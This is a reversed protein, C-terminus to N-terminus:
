RNGALARTITEDPNPTNETFVQWGAATFAAASAEQDPLLVAIGHAPWALEAEAVVAGRDGTLEFGVEPVPTGRECLAALLAHTEPAALGIAEKWDEGPPPGSEVEAEPCPVAPGETAPAFEPYLGGRVGRRTTWWAGPLFQLLNFLRLVGNWTRRYRPSERSAEDDHLHVIAAMAGPDGEEVAALPLAVFLDACRRAAAMGASAGAGIEPDTGTGIRADVGTGADATAGIGTNAGTATRTDVETRSGADTGTGTGAGAGSGIGADAGTWAGRGALAVPAPLDALAERVQGPLAEAAARGFRARLAGSLMRKRDFFRFLETFVARKWQVPDPDALYRVLLILAPEHLRSRYRATDWRRDLARQLVSMPNADVEEGRSRGEEEPFGPANGAVGANGDVGSSFGADSRGEEGLLDPVDTVGSWGEEGLLDPVESVGGFAAELDHWTLSWVLFGARALAMRKLSDADTTDRHFEFGDTFVAVPPQGPSPRAPRILFDPRSPEAVGESPGLDAQPEMYYTRGGVKLVYGPKGRVLDARVQVTGGAGGTSGVGGIDGIGDAGAARGAGGARGARGIGGVDGIGGAGGAGGVGVGHAGGVSGVGGASGASGAGGAGGASGVGGIGGADGIGDAGAAGGARGAGRAGGIGGDSGVEGGSGGGDRDIEVRCLAEIFRAELESELPGDTRVSGLSPVEELAHARDLIRDLIEIAADRSTEAMERSRRYAFVCRYCGDKSPDRNCECSKLADRASRFVALMRAPDEMLEKLYGTGSPVTDYLLLYRHSASASASAGAGGTAAGGIAGAAAGQRVTARLHDIRGRFHLRLGLELAAVFSSIRRDSMAAGSLAAGFSPANSLPPVGVFPANLVPLLMQVAESRFERYLYLCDAVDSQGPAKGLPQGTARAAAQGSGKGARQGAARGAPQRAPRGAAKRASCTRTHRSEEGGEGDGEGDGAGDGGSGGAQVTGCRRCVRFGERPLSLGAFATPQGGDGLRGFNMERFTASAVYEFGFPLDSGTVAWAREVADPEFDAVLQRTYFRPERDDYDDLIRARRDDKAAHVLRLPLMERRQGTDSWMPDGCRPCAAYEDKPGVNECYDCSPCLRWTEIESVRLDIRDISVRRGGAHFENEPAFEGLASAAPRVYEYVEHEYAVPDSGAKGPRQDPRERSRAASDGLSRGPSRWEYGGGDGDGDADTSGGGGTGASGIMSAETSTSGSGAGAGTDAGASTRGAQAGARADAGADEGGRGADRDPERRRYIVSKLTVGAEPFAYNPLLGEDTLFNFTERGNLGRLLGQLGRRERAIEEIEDETAEDRPGRKLAALRRGLSEVDARLAKREKAVDLFRSVLRSRLSPRSGGPEGGGHLFATLYDKSPATLGASEGSFATFFAELLADGHAQVFDFFPYPFGAVGAAVVTAAAPSSADAGAREVNDLVQRITRPVADEPLGTAAWSDLCFATLQRELVAPADLFVGPPAIRGALMEMPDTYFYLDHPQGTAVTATLANGDRRGARGIRQLYNAQAPPVSCLVVTSLDGVDIGLELTPTASLLNPEWPRPRPDSFRQQLRDREERTLLATHEAAIIRRIATDRYLRGFWTPPEAASREYAAQVGLDLCPVGLWLDAEREPVVLTRRSGACHLVAPRATVHFRAPDLAWAFAGGAARGVVRGATGATSGGAAQGAARGRGAIGGVEIRCILGAAELASFVELLVRAADRTATLVDIPTLVKEAWTQYWSRPRGPGAILPELGDRGRGGGGGGRGSAGSVDAPFVPLASRRGFDQLARDRNLWWRGGGRALWASALGDGDRIAGRDKMRRLIGLALARVPAPGLDRLGGFAERIRLRAERCARELADRDVGVAAARTRELTRGIASGYGLEALTDWRLRRAVLAPLDSGAPLRGERQLAVFDRLWQRDPAIFESVFRETDFAGPNVRADRWWAEVRAPLDALATGDHAAVVQAVAARVSNRWTRASFFGGRHAADQVNDSFAIVKRDNNYRSGCAQGLAVSLLSAARAGLIILGERAGCYPCDRSLRKAPTGGGRSARSVVADPRFVRVLRNSRCGPCLPTEREGAQERGRASGNGGERANGNGNGSRNRYGVGRGHGHGDRGEQGQGYGGERGHEHRHAQVYGDERGHGREHGQGSGGDRRGPEHRHAQGDRDERGQGHLMGCAGCVTSFVGRVGPPAEAPFLYQVDVDRAFFRNYFVRLDREIRPEAPRKVAGWGTVRCERCQILPLHISPEGPSLDDSYRLRRVVTGGVAAKGEPATASDTAGGERDGAPEAATGRAKGESGGRHGRGAAPNGSGPAVGERLGAVGEVSGEDPEEHLSCVMRRLERVWLHMGVQLFPLLRGPPAEAISDAGAEADMPASPGAVTGAGADEGGERRRAVSILACLGNLVGVAEHDNAVPLSRRLREVVGSMPKPGGDLVRLLNVFAAHERLRDALALRWEGSEFGGEIPADFFLAHQARLYQEATAYRTPDVRAALDDRPHLHRSIVADGLFADISQRTEGVIAGPEFRQGFVRSAYDLLEAEADAGGDVGGAGGGGGAGGMGGAHGPDGAGGARGPDGAHRGARAHGAGGLTASTGVCILKGPSVRLRVRLRRILCALDTGQAGDFTHLEDVVLYRLTDPGNHRWLRFDFPRVLLYDLMKYNTLLIDPPRERLTDRDTIVHDQGMTTHPSRQPRNDRGVFLGATVKGRLSPTRNITRAIRRAQDAALANMPYVLVAKIGPAPSAARCHDLIPFLFCETKGSGTGTAIVTSRRGAGTAPDTGTATTTSRGAAPSLGAGAAGATSRRGARTAAGAGTGASAALRSFAIRQHRYPTFGLPIEPLPIEPFPEGGEPAPQFPLAISLYPGKALNGPEALFDDVVNALAPNSPGFGTALFDRLAGTVESAVVSPIM